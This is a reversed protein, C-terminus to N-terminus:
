SSAGNPTVPNGNDASNTAPAEEPEQKIARGDTSIVYVPLGDLAKSDWRAHAGDRFPAYDPGDGRGTSKTTSILARHFPRKPQDDRERRIDHERLPIILEYRCLWTPEGMWEVDSTPQRQWRLQLRPAPLDLECALPEADDNVQVAIKRELEAVKRADSEWRDIMLAIVAVLHAPTQKILDPLGAAYHRLDADTIDSTLLRSM